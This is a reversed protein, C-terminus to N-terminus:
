YNLLQLTKPLNKKSRHDKNMEKQLNQNKEKILKTLKQKLTNFLPGVKKKQDKTLKPFESSITTLVGRKRGLYFIKFEGLEHRSKIKKLKAVAEKEIRDLDKM